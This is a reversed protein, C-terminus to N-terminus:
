RKIAPELINKNSVCVCVCVCVCVSVCVCNEVKINQSNDVQIM